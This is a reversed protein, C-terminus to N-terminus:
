SECYGRTAMLKITLMLNERCSAPIFIIRYRGQNACLLVPTGFINTFHMVPQLTFHMNISILVNILQELHWFSLVLLGFIIIM